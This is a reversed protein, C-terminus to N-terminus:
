GISTVSEYIRDAITPRRFNLTKIKLFINSFSVAEPAFECLLCYYCNAVTTVICGVMVFNVVSGIVMQM